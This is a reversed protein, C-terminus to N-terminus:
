IRDKLANFEDELISFKKKLESTADEGLAKIKAKLKGLEDDIKSLEEKGTPTSAILYAIVVVASLCLLITITKNM